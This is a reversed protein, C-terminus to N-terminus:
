SNNSLDPQVEDKPAELAIKHTTYEEYKPTKGVKGVTPDAFLQQKVTLPGKEEKEFSVLGINAKFLIQRTFNADQKAQAIHRSAIKRLGDITKYKVEGNTALLQTPKPRSTNEREDWVNHVRWRWDPPNNEAIETEKPWGDTPIIVPSKRLKHRLFMSAEKADTLPAPDNKIWGLREARIEKRVLKQAIPLHQAIVQIYSPMINRLGSSILQAFCAPKNEEGTKPKTWYYMRTSSGYHVDGSLIVIRQFPALRRFLEEQTEPDFVWAEIADPNSGRMGARRPESDGLDFARYAIPAVLEDLVSPGIVPLPAVVFLVEDDKPKPNEPILDKMGNVSLNGPAGSSSVYTRRTRNDIVLVKHKAGQYTYHWKILPSRNDDVKQRENKKQKDNLQHQYDFGFLFDLTNEKETITGGEDKFLSSIQLLLFAHPNGLVKLIENDEKKGQEKEYKRILFEDKKEQNILLWEGEVRKKIEVKGDKLEINKEKFATKLGESLQENDLDKALDTKIDFFHGKKNYKHPKNGWDQFLAYSMMGNRVIAKGLNSTFVRDRWDPNLNWDDTVEHDDFIMYTSINALARRVKGLGKHLVQLQLARKIDRKKDEPTDKKEDAYLGGLWEQLYEIFLRFIPEKESGKGEVFDDVLKKADDIEEETGKNALIAKLKPQVNEDEFLFDLSAKVIDDAFIDKPKITKEEGNVKITIEKTNHHEETLNRIFIAGYNEAVKKISNIEDDFTRLEKWKDNEMDPWLVDSWVFMYMSAFEGFTILHNAQDKTTFRAESDILRHRFFAPFHTADAAWRKPTNSEPDPWDTPLTEKKDLLTAGCATLEHLLAGVVSDAYIQDGSLFLQQPRKQADTLSVKILDDAYTLADEYTNDNNRCSGHLIKLDIVEKAPLVFSPLQDAEYSIKTPGNSSLADLLKESKFDTTKDGVKFKLNYSYIEGWDLLKDAKLTLNVVALHLHKGIQVTKQQETKAHPDQEIDEHKKSGKWVSLEIEAASKLAVWVAVQSPEVRRVIPGCLILPLQNIDINSAM